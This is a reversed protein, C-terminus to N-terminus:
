SSSTISYGLTSIYTPSISFYPYSYSLCVRQQVNVEGKYYKDRAATTTNHKQGYLQPLYNYCEIVSFYNNISYHSTYHHLAPNHAPHNPTETGAPALINGKVAVDLSARPGV